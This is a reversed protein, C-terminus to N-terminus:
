TLGSRMLKLMEERPVDPALCARLIRAEKVRTEAAVAAVKSAIDLPIAVAGHCDAYILDGTRVRLGLIEVPGGFDVVHMYAHSVAVFRGFIPFELKKVAPLDRAAGNTIVGSCHLAKLVASHVEGVCSGAPNADVDEVM